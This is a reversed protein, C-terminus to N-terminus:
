EDHRHGIFKGPKTFRYDADEEPITGNVYRDDRWLLRWMTCLNINDTGTEVGIEPAVSGGHLYNM